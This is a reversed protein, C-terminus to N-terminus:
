NKSQEHTGHTGKTTSSESTESATRTAPPEPAAVVKAAAEHLATSMDASESNAVALSQLLKSIDAPDLMVQDFASGLSIKDAM